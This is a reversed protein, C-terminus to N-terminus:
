ALPPLTVIIYILIMPKKAANVEVIEKIGWNIWLKRLLDAFSKDININHFKTIDEIKHNTYPMM